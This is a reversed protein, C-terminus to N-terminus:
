LCRAIASERGTLLAQDIEMIALRLGEAQGSQYQAYNNNDRRSERKLVSQVAELRRVAERVRSASTKDTAPKKM